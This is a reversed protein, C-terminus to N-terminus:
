KIVRKGQCLKCFPTGEIVCNPCVLAGCGHCKFLGPSYKGCVQCIGGVAM